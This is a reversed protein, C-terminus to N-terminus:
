LQIEPTPTFNWPGGWGDPVQMVIYLKDIPKDLSFNDSRGYVTSNDYQYTASVYAYKAGPAVIFNYFNYRSLYQGPANAEQTINYIEREGSAQGNVYNIGMEHLTVNAGPCPWGDSSVVYGNVALVDQTRSANSVYPLPIVLSKDVTSRDQATFNDSRAYYTVNDKEVSASLYVYHTNNRLYQGITFLGTFPQLDETHTSMSEIEHDGSGNNGIVHLWVEAGPVGIGYSDVLYGTVNYSGITEYESQPLNADRPPVIIIVRTDITTNNKLSFDKSVGSCTSNNSVPISASAYAYSAGPVLVVNDFVFGGPSGNSRNTTTTLNYLEQPITVNGDTTNNGMVHLTVITNTIETGYNNAVYGTVNCIAQVTQTQRPQSLSFAAVAILCVIILVAIAGFVFVRSKMQYCTGTHCAKINKFPLYSNLREIVFRLGSPLPM